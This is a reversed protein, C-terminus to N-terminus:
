RRFSSRSCSSCSFSASAAPRPSWGNRSTTPTPCSNPSCDPPAQRSRRSGPRSSGKASSRCDAGGMGASAPDAILCRDQGALHNRGFPQRHHRHGADAAGRFAAADAASMVMVALSRRRWLRAEFWKMVPWTAVVLMTAWITAGIFPRLIWFSSLILGGLFLVGLTTRVLDAPPKEQMPCTGPTKSPIPTLHLTDRWPRPARSSCFPVHGYINTKHCQVALKGLGQKTGLHPRQAKAAPPARGLKQGRAKADRPGPRRLVENGIGRMSPSGGHGACLDADRMFFSLADMVWNGSM